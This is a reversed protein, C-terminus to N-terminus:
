IERMDKRIFNRLFKKMNMSLIFIDASEKTERKIISYKRVRQGMLFDQFLKRYIMMLYLPKQCQTIMVKMREKLYADTMTMCAEVNQAYTGEEIRNMDKDFVFPVHAGWIHIFKFTKDNTTTLESNKAEDYFTENDYTYAKCDDPNARFDEFDQAGVM